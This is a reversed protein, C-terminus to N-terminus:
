SDAQWHLLCLLSQNWERSYSITARELIRAQLIGCVSSGPPSCDTPDCLTPCSQAVSSAHVYSSLESLRHAHPSPSGQTESPGGGSQALCVTTEPSNFYVLSLIFARAQGTAGKPDM